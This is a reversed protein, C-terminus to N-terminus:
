MSLPITTGHQLNISFFAKTPGLYHRHTLMIQSAAYPTQLLCKHPHPTAGGHHRPLFLWPHNAVVLFGISFAGWLCNTCLKQPVVIKKREHARKCYTLIESPRKEFSARPAGHTKPKENGLVAGFELDQHNHRGAQIAPPIRGSIKILWHTRRLLSVTPFIQPLFQHTLLM